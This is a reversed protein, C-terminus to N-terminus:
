PRSRTQWKQAGIWLFLTRMRVDVGWICRAYVISITARTDHHCVPRPRLLRAGSYPSIGRLPQKDGPVRLRTWGGGFAQKLGAGEAEVAACVVAACEYDMSQRTHGALVRMGREHSHGVMVCASAPHLCRSDRIIHSAVTHPVATPTLSPRPTTLTSRSTILTGLHQPRWLEAMRSRLSLPTFADETHVVQNYGRTAQPHERIRLM